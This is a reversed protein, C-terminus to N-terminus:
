GTKRYVAVAVPQLPIRLGALSESHGAFLYGGPQLYRCLRNVVAEQTTRDFYILVNRFFIAEFSTRVDYTREFHVKQRLGPVVRVLGRSADRSSLLYSKRLALPVPEVQAQPYTAERAQALVRTSIDTALISFDFGPRRKGHESLVMALTWAEEGSSCGACWVKAPWSRTDPLRDLAPLAKNVLYEFHQPERFFDTKNTTVADIFHVLEGEGAPSHFLYQRYQEFGSLRLQRIRRALRGQLMTRKAEAMRIGLSQTILHAFHEFDERSLDDPFAEPEPYGAECGAQRLRESVRRGEM